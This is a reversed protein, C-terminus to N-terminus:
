NLLTAARTLEYNQQDELTPPKPARPMTGTTTRNNERLNALWKHSFKTRIALKFSLRSFATLFVVFVLSFIKRTAFVDDDELLHKLKVLTM